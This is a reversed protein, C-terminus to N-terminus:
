REAQHLASLDYLPRSRSDEDVFNSKLQPDRTGSNLKPPLSEDGQSASAQFFVSRARTTNRSDRLSFDLSHDFCSQM